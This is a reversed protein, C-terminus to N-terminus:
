EEAFTQNPASLLLDSTPARRDLRREPISSVQGKTPSGLSRM